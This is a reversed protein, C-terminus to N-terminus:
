QPLDGKHLASTSLHKQSLTGRALRVPLPEVVVTPRMVSRSRQGVRLKSGKLSGMRSSDWLAVTRRGFRIYHRGRQGPAGAAVLLMATLSIWVIRERTRPRLAPLATMTETQGSSSATGSVSEIAFALDHAPGTIARM